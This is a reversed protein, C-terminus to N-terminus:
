PPPYFQLPDKLFYKQVTIECAGSLISTKLHSIGSLGSCAGYCLAESLTAQCISPGDERAAGGDEPGPDAIIFLPYLLIAIIWLRWAGSAARAQLGGANNLNDAKIQWSVVIPRIM